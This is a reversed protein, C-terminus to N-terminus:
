VLDLAHVRILAAREDKNQDNIAKPSRVEKIKVDFASVTDKENAQYPDTLSLITPTAPRALADLATLFKAAEGRSKGCDVMMVIELVSQGGTARASVERVTPSDDVDTTALVLRIEFEIGSITSGSSASAVFRHRTVDDTSSTAGVQAFAGGDASVYAALSTNAPLPDTIITIDYLVKVLGPYDWDHKGLDITATQTTYALTDFREVALTNGGSTVPAIFIDKGLTIADEPTGTTTQTAMMYIAGDTLNYAWVAGDFYIILDDGIVGAILIPKSATAGSLSRFPGAFGQQAGRQFWLYADGTSAHLPAVRLTVFTFGHSWFLSYPFVGDIPVRGIREQVDGAPDYLWVSVQGGFDVDLWIPGRDSVALRGYSWPVSGSYKGGSVDAVQTTTDSSLQDVLHLNSVSLAYIAGDFTCLVPAIFTAAAVHEEAAVNNWRWISGNTHGTYVWSGGDGGVLSTADNTGAGTTIANDTEWEVEVPDWEYATGDEVVWLGSPSGDGGMGFRRGDNFVTSGNAQVTVQQRAGLVLGDRISVPRVNSSVRYMRRDREWWTIGEGGRWSRTTFVRFAPDATLGPRDGSVTESEPDIPLIRRQYQEDDPLWSALPLELSGLTAYRAM